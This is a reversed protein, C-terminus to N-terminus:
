QKTKRPPAVPASRYFRHLFRCEVTTRSAIMALMEYVVTVAKEDGKRSPDHSYFAILSKCIYKSEMRHRLSVHEESERPERAAGSGGPWEM